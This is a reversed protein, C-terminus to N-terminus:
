RDKTDREIDHDKASTAVGDDSVLLARNPISNGIDDSAGSLTNTGLKQSVRMSSIIDNNGQGDGTEPVVTHVKVDSDFDYVNTGETQFRNLNLSLDGKEQEHQGEDVDGHEPNALLDAKKYVCTFVNKKGKRYKGKM